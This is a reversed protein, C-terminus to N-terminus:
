LDINGYFPKQLLVSIGRSQRVKNIKNLVCGFKHVWFYAILYSFLISSVFFYPIFILNNVADKIDSLNKILNLNIWSLDIGVWKFFADFVVFIIINYFIISSFVTQIWFITSIGVIETPSHKM